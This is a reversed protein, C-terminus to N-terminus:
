CNLCVGRVLFIRVKYDGEILNSPLAVETRFLSQQLLLVSNRALQYTGSTTRIRQLAQLYVDDRASAGVLGIEQPISIKYHADEDKNLIDGLDGTTMVAYFSPTAPVAMAGRNIWIGAVREKHRVVVPLAPGEVTIIVQLLPWDPPPAERVAAGYILIATGDFNANISVLSQSLGSVIEEARLPGSLLALLYILARIM